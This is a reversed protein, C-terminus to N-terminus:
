QAQGTPPLARWSAGGDSTVFRRGDAATVTATQPGRATIAIWDPMKGGAAAAQMPPTVLVWHEGDTTRAVAGNRGALWCATDSIASGALWDEHGPSAQATWSEGADASYEIRGGTGGRWITSGYPSTATISAPAAPKAPAVSGRTEANMAVQPSLQPAPLFGGAVRQPAASKKDQAREVVAANPSAQALVDRKATDADPRIASQLASPEEAVKAKAAPPASPLNEAAKSIAEKQRGKESPGNVPSGSKTEESSERAGRGFQDLSATPQAPATKTAEAVLAPKERQNLARWPPRLTFWVALVAAVGTAPALWRIRWDLVMRRAPPAIEKRSGASAHATSILEGLHAIEAEALPTEGSAALVRLVTRCRACSAFHNEWRASEAPALAQESYTAILEADPCEDEGGSDLRDLAEGLRRALLAERRRLKAADKQNADM